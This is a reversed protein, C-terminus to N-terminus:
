SCVWTHKCRDEMECTGGCSRRTKNKLDRTIVITEGQVAHPEHKTFVPIIDYGHLWGFDGLSTLVFFIDRKDKDSAIVLCQIWEQLSAFGISEKYSTGTYLTAGGVACVIDGPLVHSNVGMM